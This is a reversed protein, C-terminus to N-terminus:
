RRRAGPMTRRRQYAAQVRRGHTRALRRMLAGSPEPPVPATQPREVAEPAKETPEQDTV